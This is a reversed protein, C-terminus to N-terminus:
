PRLLPQLGVWLQKRLSENTILQSLSESCIFRIGEAEMVQYYAIGAPVEGFYIVYQTRGKFYAINLTPQTVVDVSHVNKLAAIIKTLQEKEQEKLDPWARNIVVTLHPRLSYIEEQFVSQFIEPQM